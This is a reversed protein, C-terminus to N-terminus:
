RLEVIDTGGSSGERLSQPLRAGRASRHQLKHPALTGGAVAIACTHSPKGSLSPLRAASSPHQGWQDEARKRGAPGQNPGKDATRMPEM